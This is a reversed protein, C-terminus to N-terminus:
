PQGVAKHMQAQEPSECGGVGGAGKMIGSTDVAIQMVFAYPRDFCADWRTEGSAWFRELVSKAALPAGTGGARALAPLRAAVFERVAAGGEAGDAAQVGLVVLPWLVFLRLHPRALARALLDRLQAVATSCVPPPPPGAAASPLVAVSRLSSSWYLAAAARYIRGVLAWDPWARPKTGAWDDPSFACIQELSALAERTLEGAGRGAAGRAARYRLHNIKVIEAFLPGPCMQFPIAATGALQQVVDLAALHDQTMCLDSAASTTNGIVSVFFLTLLQPALTRYTAMPSFGGRLRVLKIAAEVHPRWNVSAPRQLDVLLLTVIGAIVADNFSYHSEDNLSMRLSRIATGRYTYFRETLVGHNGGPDDATRNMRHSLVMCLMGHRIYDPLAVAERVLNPPIRYISPNDGLQLIPCLDQYICGNFYETGQVLADADTYAGFRSIFIGQWPRALGAAGAKERRLRPMPERSSCVEQVGAQDLRLRRLAPPMGLLTAAPERGDRRPKLGPLELASSGPDILATERFNSTRDRIYLAAYGQCPVCGDTSEKTTMALGSAQESRGMPLGPWPNLGCPCFAGIAQIRGLLM